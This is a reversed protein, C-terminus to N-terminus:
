AEEEASDLFDLLATTSHPDIQAMWAAQHVPLGEDVPPYVRMIADVVLREKTVKKGTRRAQTLEEDLRTMVQEDVRVNLMRKATTVPM